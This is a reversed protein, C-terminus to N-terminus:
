HIVREAPLTVTVSTGSGKRSKIVLTGNHLEVLGETLPLGLGAGEQKRALTGDVQGFETMAKAIEDNNMGIGTDSVTFSFDGNELLNVKLSVIGNAPTFKAANTLLNLLIQKMRRVDARILPLDLPIDKEFTLNSSNLRPAAIRMTADVVDSFILPEESLEIKGAEIASVDLIDNILSLLHEGSNNIHSVYESQKENSLAGFTGEQLVSSFGIIANLPTRLEHSMNAMMESKARNAIEAQEKAIQMSLEASKRESIDEHVSIFHTIEGESNKVPSIIAYAWFLSGNKRQDLLEGRWERGSLITKWLEQYTEPPTEGSKLIRPTKGYVESAEYQTLELFKPNFYEIHGQADTIFVMSPSQDIARSLKHSTEEARKREAIEATLKQTREQVRKELEDRSLKLETEIGHRIFLLSATAWIALISLARNAVAMWHIGQEPSLYYGVLTLTSGVLALIFIHHRKPYWIGILVVLVYPVGGAVGLPLFLDFALTLVALCITLIILKGHFLILGTKQIRSYSWLWVVVIMLIAVVSVSTIVTRRISISNAELSQKKFDFVIESVDFPNQILGAEDITDYIRHWRFVNNHGIDVVNYLTLKRIEDIQFRNFGVLDTIKFHRPLFHAIRDAVEVSNKLAYRWGKLSAEKFRQVLEPNNESLAQHTFLTDGYFDIGYSAPRLVNVALGEQRARWLGTLTYGAYADIEKNKLRTFPRTGRDSIIDLTDPNIGEAKLVARFEIESLDGQTLQLRKGALDAPTQINLDKRSFLGVASKQFISAVIILPINRSRSVMIDGSSIGFDARGESVEQISNLVKRDKTVGPRIEVNLGAEDYYGQWKAAYYGAFQFQNDWRLQLVVNDKAQIEPIHILYVVGVFGILFFRLCLKM